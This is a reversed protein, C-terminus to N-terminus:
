DKKNVKEKGLLKSLWQDNSRAWSLFTSDIICVFNVVLLQYRVPTKWFNLLQIPPWFVLQAAFTSLFDNELKEVVSGSNLAKTMFAFFAALYVPGFAFSDLVVKGILMNRSNSAIGIGKLVKGTISALNEYWLHGLPAVFIGAFAVTATFRQSNLDKSSKIVKEKEICQASYDGIGWLALSTILHTSIPHSQM